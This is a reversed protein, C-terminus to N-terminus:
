EDKPVAPTTQFLKLVQVFSSGVVLFVFMGVMYPNLKREVEEDDSKKAAVNGRKTVNKDFKNTRNRISRPAPKLNIKFTCIFDYPYPSYVHITHFHTISLM